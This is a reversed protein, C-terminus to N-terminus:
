GVLLDCCADLFGEVLAEPVELEFDTDIEVGVTSTEAHQSL